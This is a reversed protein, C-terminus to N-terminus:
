IDIKRKGLATLERTIKEEAVKSDQIQMELDRIKARAAELEAAKTEVLQKQRVQERDLDVKAQQRWKENRQQEETDRRKWIDLKNSGQAEGVFRQCSCWTCLLGYVGRVHAKSVHGCTCIL